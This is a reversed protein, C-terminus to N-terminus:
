GIWAPGPEDWAPLPAKRRDEHRHGFGFENFDETTPLRMQFSIVDIECHLGQQFHHPTGKGMALTDFDTSEPTKGQM